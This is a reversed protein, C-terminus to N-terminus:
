RVVLLKRTANFTGASFRYFYIGQAVRRGNKDLGNWVVSKHGPKETANVLTRIVQGAANYLKLSVDTEKPVAYHIITRNKLPNPSNQSLAFVKPITIDDNDDSSFKIKTGFWTLVNGLVTIQDTKPLSAYMFPMFVVKNSADDWRVGRCTTAGADTFISVASPEIGIEDNWNYPQLSLEATIGGTIPDGAVGYVSDYCADNYIHNVKLVDYPFEGPVYDVNAWGDWL